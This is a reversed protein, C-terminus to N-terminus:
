PGFRRELSAYDSDPILGAFVPYSSVRGGPLTPGLGSEGRVIAECASHVDGGLATRMSAAAIYIDRSKM